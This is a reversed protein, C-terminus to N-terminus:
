YPKLVLELWTTLSARLFFRCYSVNM